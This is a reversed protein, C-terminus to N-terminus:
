TIFLPNPISPPVSPQLRVSPPPQMSALIEHSLTLNLRLALREKCENAPQSNAGHATECSASLISYPHTSPQENIAKTLLLKRVPDADTGMEVADPSLEIAVEGAHIASSVLEWHARLGRLANYVGNHNNYKSLCKNDTAYSRTAMPTVPVSGSGTLEAYIVAAASADGGESSSSSAAPQLSSPIFGEAATWMGVEKGDLMGIGVDGGSGGGDGSLPLLQVLRLGVLRRVRPLSTPRYTTPRHSDRRIGLTTPLAGRYHLYYPAMSAATIDDEEGSAGDPLECALVEFEFHNFLAM